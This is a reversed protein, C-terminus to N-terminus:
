FYSQNTFSEGAVAYSRMEFVSNDLDYYPYSDLTIKFPKVWQNFDAVYEKKISPSNPMKVRFPDVQRGNRWFRYCVHPGTALGTSGVYGIVDGQRVRKGPYIGKRIRSMHLYQTSYISNHKIKVYNGNGRTYSAKSITGDATALIPTGRPAAYDTGKHSKWVRLVPHFRRRTFRSSIRSYKLPAKLFTKRMSKGKESFFGFSKDDNYFNFAYYQRNQHLFVAAKIRTIGVSVTDDVFTEDYVVKFCDGKQIRFFDVTWAYINSLKFGLEYSLEEEEITQFLSNNIIGKSVREVVRVPKKFIRVDCGRRLDIVAHEIRNIHFIIIQPSTDTQTKSRVLTYTGGAQLLNINFVGHGKTLIKNIADYEFKHKQLITIITENPKIKEETLTYDTIDMGYRIVREAQKSEHEATYKVRLANFAEKSKPQLYYKRAENDQYISVAGYSMGIACVVLYAWLPIFSLKHYCSYLYNTLRQKLRKKKKPRKIFITEKEKTM